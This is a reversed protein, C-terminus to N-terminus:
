IDMETQIIFVTSLEIIIKSVIEKMYPMARFM